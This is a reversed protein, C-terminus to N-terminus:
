NSGNKMEFRLAYNRDWRGQPLAGVLEYYGPYDQSLRIEIPADVWLKSNNGVMVEVHHDGGPIRAFCMRPNFPISSVKAIFNQAPSGPEEPEKPQSIADAKIPMQKGSLNAKHTARGRALAELRDALQEPRLKAYQARLTAAIKARTAAKVRSRKKM